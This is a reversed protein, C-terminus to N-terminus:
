FKINGCSLYWSIQAASKHVNIALPGMAKLQNMTADITTTSQGNVVSSLPYKVAGPNPCSGIHIHAPESAGAPEGSLNFTVTVKGGIEQLTATGTQGSSNQPDLNVSLPTPTPTALSMAVSSRYTFIAFIAVIIAAIGALMMLNKDEKSNKYSKTSSKKKRAM